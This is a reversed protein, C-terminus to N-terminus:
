NLNRVPLQLAYPWEKSKETKRITSSNSFQGDFQDNEFSEQNRNDSVIQIGV